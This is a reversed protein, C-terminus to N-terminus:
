LLAVMENCRKRQDNARGANAIENRVRSDLSKETVLAETFVQPGDHTVIEYGYPGRQEVLGDFRIPAHLPVM